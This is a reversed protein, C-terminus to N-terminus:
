PAAPPPGAYREVCAYLDAPEVPKALYGNMGAELCRRPEDNLAHASVAVIPVSALEPLSRILRTAEFGDLVPMQLDMLVLSYRKLAMRQVAEAGDNAVDVTYGRKRLFAVLIRQNISNDEVVLVSPAAQENEQRDLTAPSKRHPGCRAADAPLEGTKPISARAPSVDEM